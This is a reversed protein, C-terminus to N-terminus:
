GARRIVACAARHRAPTADYGYMGYRTQRLSTTTACFAYAEAFQEGPSDGGGPRLWPGSGAGVLRRFRARDADTLVHADFVHGIEHLLVHRGRGNPGLHIIRGHSFACAASWSPGTPCSTLVVTVDGRPTPVKAADVWAQFRQLSDGGTSRLTTPAAGAPAALIGVLLVCIFATRKVGPV